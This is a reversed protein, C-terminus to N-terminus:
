RGDGDGDAPPRREGGRLKRLRTEFNPRAPEAMVRVGRFAIGALGALLISSPVGDRRGEAPPPLGLGGSLGLALARIALLGDSGTSM